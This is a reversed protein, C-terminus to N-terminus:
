KQCRNCYVTARQGLKVEILSKQCEVCLEGGRGYVLLEQKFYGPKGDGGVFDKLTTGGQEIAKLLIRKVEVTLREYAKRSVKGAAKTPNIKAAFLAENAYINGVGVVVHSDMLFMKIAQTRKRSRLFLSDVNFDDTLPEPGMKQILRHSEIPQDTWLVCGFRRPDNFRLTNGNTFGIDVHDHKGIAEGTSVVRLTGSMGLHVLVVGTAFHLLLYKGRRSVELLKQDALYSNLDVPVPWRLSGNRVVVGTVSHNKIHPKIGRCTTEVEPLEPM